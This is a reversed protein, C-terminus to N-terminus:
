STTKMKWKKQPRRWKKGNKEMKKKPDDENKKLPRRWNKLIKKPRRGNKENKRLDDEM